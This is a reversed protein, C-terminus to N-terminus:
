FLSKEVNKKVIELYEQFYEKAQEETILHKEIENKIISSDTVMEDILVREGHLSNDIATYDDADNNFLSMTNGQITIYSEFNGIVKSIKIISKDIKVFKGKYEETLIALEVYFKNRLEKREADKIAQSLFVVADSTSIPFQQSIERAFDKIKQDM